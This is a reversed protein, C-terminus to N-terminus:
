DQMTQVLLHLRQSGVTAEIIGIGHAAAAYPLAWHNYGAQGDLRMQMLAQGNPQLLRVEVLGSQHLQAELNLTSHSIRASFQPAQDPTRALQQTTSSSSSPSTSSSSNETPNSSVAIHSDDALIQLSSLLTASADLCLDSTSYSEWDDSLANSTTAKPSVGGYLGGVPVTYDYATGYNRGEPNAQRHHPHQLNKDGIGYLFSVDWPNLGLLYDMQHLGLQRMESAKWNAGATNSLALAGLNQAIEAYALVEFINGVLHANYQWNSQTFMNFWTPDYNLSASNWGPAPLQLVASGGSGLDGLNAALTLAVDEIYQLRTSETAIGFSTAQTADKLILHYFAYLAYTHINAWNTGNTGKLLTAYNNTLWGGRFAGAGNNISAFSAKNQGKVLAANEALDNLYANDKTAYLLAVAALALEDNHENNGNYAPSAWGSARTNNVPTITGLALQKAFTYLEQSVKLCKTAYPADYPAYLKGLIALNAAFAASVNSGLEGLRATREHPGGRGTVSAPLANQVSPLNWFKHDSSFDGISVPMNDITGQAYDYAALVFDAGHRAEALLDPIGDPTLPNSQTADYQDQDKNAHVAALVALVAATYGQTQSEKIHDGCDYWGGPVTDLTHKSQQLGFFRLAANRAYTYTKGSIVFDASYNTGVRIRLPTDEPLGSPLQGKRLSGSPGTASFSYLNGSNTSSAELQNSDALITLSSGISYATSLLNGTSIASSDSAKVVAFTTADGVVYFLKETDIPLYGAQNVRIPSIFTNLSDATRRDPKEGAPLAVPAYPTTAACLHGCLALLFFYTNKGTNM